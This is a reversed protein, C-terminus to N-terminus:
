RMIMVYGSLKILNLIQTSVFIWNALTLMALYIPFTVNSDWQWKNSSSWYLSPKYYVYLYWRKLNLFFPSLGGDIKRCDDVM